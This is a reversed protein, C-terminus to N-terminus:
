LCMKCITKVFSRVFVCQPFPVCAFLCEGIHFVVCVFSSVPLWVNPSMPFLCVYTSQYLFCVFQRYLAVFLCVSEYLFCFSCVCQRYLACVLLCERIRSVFRVSVCVSDISPVFLCFCGAVPRGMYPSRSWAM